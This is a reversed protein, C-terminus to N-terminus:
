IYSYGVPSNEQQKAIIANVIRDFLQQAGRYGLHLLRQGGIRDHVPFGVRVLPIKLKRAIQYGKSNGILLDADAAEAETAIDMFDAGERIHIRDALGPAVEGIAQALRGSEGGSACLVPIIGIEALFGVLGVVLDEEGYVVAKKEFIYKHGDIYADILRGRELRYKLPIERNTFTKLLELFLDSENVGIPMGLLFRLVQFREKLLAGATKEPNLTRGFEITALSRGMSQVATVPTGGKPIKQYEDWTPGDLSESYDPLLVYELGFDTLIEQL